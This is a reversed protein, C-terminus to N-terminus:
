NVNPRGEAVEGILQGWRSVTEGLTFHSARELSKQQWYRLLDPDQALKAIEAAMREVDGQPVLVGWRGGELIEQAGTHDFTVVPLGSAMAEIMTLPLGEWRSTSVFMSSNMYHDVLAEGSLAGRLTLRDGVMRDKMMERLSAEEAPSGAGAASIRWGDPLCAALSVLRDLGKTEMALRGTFAIQQTGLEAIRGNTNMTIPNHIKVVHDCIRSFQRRDSETLTVVASAASIAHRLAPTGFYRSVYTDHSSHLWLIIGVGPLQKRIMHAYLLHQANLIIVDPRHEKLNAIIQRAPYRRYVQPWYARRYFPRSLRRVIRTVVWGLRDIENRGPIAVTAVNPEFCAGTMDEVLMYVHSYENLADAVLTSVRQMGGMGLDPVSMCISLQKPEGECQQKRGNM